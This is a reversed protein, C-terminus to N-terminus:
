LHQMLANTILLINQLSLQRGQPPMDNNYSEIISIDDRRMLESWDTDTTKCASLFCAVFIALYKM